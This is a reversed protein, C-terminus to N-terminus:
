GADLEDAKSTVADATPLSPQAGAVSAALAGAINALRVARDLPVGSALRVALTGAFADGAATTDVAKITIPEILRAGMGDDVITGRDGLTIIAVDPGSSRLKAALQKAEEVTGCRDGAITVAETENPCLVDVDLMTAPLAQAPAPDLIVKVGAQRAIAIAAEVTERPTELQVMLVDSQRIADGHRQVDAVTVEGNSGPVVVISNEGSKEVAVIAVGSATDATTEVCTCDVGESVLHERLTKGFGDDGVRGILRVEGGARAAAVAQNAGKGGPIEEFAEATITQGPLPLDACRVVLDMNISGLVTIKPCNHPTPPMILAFANLSDVAVSM